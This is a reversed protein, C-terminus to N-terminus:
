VLHVSRLSDCSNMLLRCLSRKLQVNKICYLKCAIVIMCQPFKTLALYCGVLISHRLLDLLLGKLALSVPAMFFFNSFLYATTHRIYLPTSPGVVTLIVLITMKALM